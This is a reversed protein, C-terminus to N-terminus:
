LIHINVEEKTAITFKKEGSKIVKDDSCSHDTDDPHTTGVFEGTSAQVELVECHSQM